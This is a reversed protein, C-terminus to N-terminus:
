STFIIDQCASATDAARRTSDWITDWLIACIWILPNALQKKDTLYQTQLALIVKRIPQEVVSGDRSQWAVAVRFFQAGNATKKSDVM